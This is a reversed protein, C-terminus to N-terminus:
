GNNMILKLLQHRKEASLVRLCPINLLKISKGDISILEQESLKAFVISLTEYITGLLTALKSQSIDLKVESPDSSRDSLDLLYVALRGPVEKLSLDEILKAFLRLYKAFTSLMNIAITPQSELLKLFEKRPFFLLETKRLAEASAPYCKGDFAPM